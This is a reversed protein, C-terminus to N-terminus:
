SAGTQRARHRAMENNRPSGTSILRMSLIEESDRRWEVDTILAAVTQDGFTVEVPDEQKGTIAHAKLREWYEYEPTAAFTWHRLGGIFERNASFVRGPEPMKEGTFCSEWHGSEPYEDDAEIDTIWIYTQVQPHDPDMDWCHVFGSSDTAEWAPDPDGQNSTVDIQDQHFSVQLGPINIEM